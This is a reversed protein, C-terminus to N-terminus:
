FILPPSRTWVLLHISKLSDLDWFYSGLEPNPGCTVPDGPAWFGVEGWIKIGKAEDPTNSSYNGRAYLPTLPISM